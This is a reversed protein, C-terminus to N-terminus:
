IRAAKTLHRVMFVEGERRGGPTEHTDSVYAAESIVYGLQELNPCATCIGDFGDETLPPENLDVEDYDFSLAKLQPGILHFAAVQREYKDDWGWNNIYLSSINPTVDLIDTLFTRSPHYGAEDVYGPDCGTAVHELKLQSLPANTSLALIFQLTHKSGTLSLRSLAGFDFLRSLPHYSNDLNWNELALERLNPMCSTLSFGTPIELKKEENYPLALHLCQIHQGFDHLHQLDLELLEMETYYVELNILNHYLRYLDPSAPCQLHNLSCQHSCLYEIL